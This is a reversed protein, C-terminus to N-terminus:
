ATICTWTGPEDAREGIPLAGPMLAMLPKLSEIRHENGLMVFESYHLFAGLVNARVVLRLDNGTADWRNQEFSHWLPEGIAHWIVRELRSRRSDPIASGLIGSHLRWLARKLDDSLGRSHASWFAVRADGALPSAGGALSVFAIRRIDVGTAASIADAADRPDVRESPLLDYEGSEAKRFFPDLAALHARVDCDPKLRGGILFDFLARKDSLM